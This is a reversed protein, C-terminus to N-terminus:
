GYSGSHLFAEATGAGAKEAAREAAKEDLTVLVKAPGEECNRIVLKVKGDKVTVESVKGRVHDKNHVYTLASSYATSRFAFLLFGTMFFLLLITRQKEEAERRLDLHKATYSPEIGNERGRDIVPAGDLDSFRVAAIVAACFGSAELTRSREFIFFGATIGAIYLLTYLALRRRLM